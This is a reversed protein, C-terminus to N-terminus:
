MPSIGTIGRIPRCFRWSNSIRRLMMTSGSRSRTSLHFLTTSSWEPDLVELLHPRTSALLLYLRQPLPLPALLPSLNNHTLLSLSLSQLLPLPSQLLAPPVPNVLRVQTQEESHQHGVPFFGVQQVPRIPPSLHPNRVPLLRDLPRKPLRRRPRLLQQEGRSYDANKRFLPLSAVQFM